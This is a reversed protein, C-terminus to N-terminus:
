FGISKKYVTPSLGTVRNFMRTFHHISSYGLKDSIQTINFEEERILKKAEEIKLDIFYEIPSKGIAAKFIRCLYTKSILFKDCIDQLTLPIYISDILYSEISDVISNEAIMKSTETYFMTKVSEGSSRILSFLFEILYCRMLQVSGVKANEFNLPSKNEFEHPLEALANKAESLFLSLIKKSNKGLNFIKKNFNNMIESNCTFAIIVINNSEKKNSIHSHLEMPKHFIVQGQSLSCGIGDVIANINGRDVYAIEWFGHREPTHYFNKDLELYYVANFGLIDIDRNIKTMEFGM